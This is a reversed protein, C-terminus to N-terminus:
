RTRRLIALGSSSEQVQITRKEQSSRGEDLSILDVKGGSLTIRRGRGSKRKLILTENRMIYKRGDQLRREYFSIYYEDLARESAFTTMIGEIRIVVRSITRTPRSSLGGRFAVNEYGGLADIAPVLDTCM